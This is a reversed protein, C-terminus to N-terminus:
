KLHKDAFKIYHKWDEATISHKGNKIHYGTKGMAGLFKYVKEAEDLSKKENEPDAWLDESSSAVYLPRPAILALLEHQDFPLANENDNYKKFNRCFWYPFFTNIIKVTEGIKGRSLAAGGCGSNNSIVMAFRRDTAGAWLATKGLRSHGILAVRKPDIDGDTELYDMARSLGWAWAAICGWSDPKEIRSKSKDYLTAVSKVRSDYDPYIDSIFMTALGYGHELLEKVCWRDSRSGRKVSQYIGYGSRRKSAPLIDPDDCVTENGQFNLGLFVPAKGKVKNPTYILLIMKQPKGKRVNYIDELTFEVQKRTALGDLAEHSSELVKWSIGSIDKEPVKGFMEATFLDLLESRRKEWQGKNKVPTGDKMVLPDPLTGADLTSRDYNVYRANFSEKTYDNLITVSWPNLNAEHAARKCIEVQLPQMWSPCYGNQTVDKGSLAEYWTCAVTFRGNTYSMHHGDRVFNQGLLSTRGNQIATGSPIIKLSHAACAKKDAEVIENYMTMQNRGYDKFSGHISNEAYAWTQQFCIKTDPGATERALTVLNTLFPEFSEWKGSLRSAQQFSIYDWKESAFADKMTVKVSTWKGDRCKRMGYKYDKSAYNWHKELPCGGINISGIVFESGGAKAIDYLYDSVADASFSNGVALIRITDNQASVATSFISALVAIIIKRTM